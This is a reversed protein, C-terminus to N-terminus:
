RTASRQPTLRAVTERARCSNAAVAPFAARRTHHRTPLAITFVQLGRDIPDDATQVLLPVPQVFEVWGFHPLEEPCSTSRM